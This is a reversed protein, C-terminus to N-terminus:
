GAFPLRDHWVVRHNPQVESVKEDAHANKQPGDGAREQESRDPKPSCGMAGFPSDDVQSSYRSRTGLRFWDRGNMRDHAEM